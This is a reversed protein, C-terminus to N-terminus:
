HHHHHMSKDQKKSEMVTMVFSQSGGDVFNLTVDFEMDVELPSQLGILMLHKGRPVFEVSAGKEITFPMNLERMKAMDGDIYTEHLEVKKAISAPVTISSVKVAKGSCNKLTMYGAGMKAMAFTPSAWAKKVELSAEDCSQAFALPTISLLLFLLPSIGCFLKRHSM